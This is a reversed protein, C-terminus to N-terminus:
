LKAEGYQSKFNDPIKKFQQIAETMREQMLLYNVLQLRDHPSIDKKTVLNVLFRM